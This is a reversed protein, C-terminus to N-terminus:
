RRTKVRPMKTYDEPDTVADATGHLVIFSISVDKLKKGLYDTVRLLEMVTGLRSQESYRMPNRTATPKKEEVKITKELLDETSSPSPLWSRTFLPSTFFSKSGIMGRLNFYDEESTEEWFNIEPAIQHESMSDFGFRSLNNNGSVKTHRTTRFRRM